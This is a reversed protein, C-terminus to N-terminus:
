LRETRTSKLATAPKVPAAGEKAVTPSSRRRSTTSGSNAGPVFPSQSLRSANQVVIHVEHRARTIANYALRRKREDSGSVEYPWLVIVRDFERNKAQHISMATLRREEHHAHGRSRQVLQRVAERIEGAKFERKGFLRRQRSLWDRVMGISGGGTLALTQGGVVADDENPLRVEDCIRGIQEDNGAEWFLKFPGIQQQKGMPGSNVREVVERVFKSRAATVPSIVAVTGHGIWQTIKLAVEWAGPGYAAVGKITFGRAPVVAQQDRLATAAALLGPTRTRHITTLVTPSAQQRAWEISACTTEGDLDQFWDGATICECQAALGKLVRLQGEKSDQLEDIIVVPFTSAVWRQVHPEELLRGAQECIENFGTPAPGCLVRALSRWRCVIRWAFSDVTASEFRGALGAIKGLRDRVRRRSGHMKTLALVRQHEALPTATVSEDLRAMVATTKGTGAGGEIFQLSM